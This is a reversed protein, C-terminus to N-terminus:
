PIDTSLTLRYAPLPAGHDTGTVQAPAAATIEGGLAARARDVLDSLAVLAPGTGSNPVAALLTWTAEACGGSFRYSIEPPRVLVGPPNLDREDLAAPVGAATLRGVMAVMAAHIM